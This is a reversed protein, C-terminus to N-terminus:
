SNNSNNIQDSFRANNNSIDNKLLWHKKKSKPLVNHFTAQKANIYSDIRSNGPYDKTLYTFWDIFHHSKHWIPDINGESQAEKRFEPKVLNKNSLHIPSRGSKM